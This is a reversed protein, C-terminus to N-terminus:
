LDLYWLLMTEERYAPAAAYAFRHIAGLTCGMAHYFTNARPNINQTEIKMQALGSARAFAEAERFLDRGVGRGRYVPHVRLDWLVALDRRGDLMHISPTDWVLAAAGVPREGDVALWFRFNTMDFQRPWDLPSEDQDYDKELPPHVPVEELSIGGLGDRICEVRLIRDTTFRIPVEAYRGLAEQGCSIIQLTTM